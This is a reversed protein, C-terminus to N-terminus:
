SLVLLHPIREAQEGSGGKCWQKRAIGFTTSHLILWRSKSGSVEPERGSRGWQKGEGSGSMVIQLSKIGVRRGTGWGPRM